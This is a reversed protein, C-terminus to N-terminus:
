LELDFQDEFVVKGDLDILRLMDVEGVRNFKFKFGVIEGLDAAHSEEIRTEGDIFIVCKKDEVILKFDVWNNLDCGLSSLDNKKGSLYRDGLTVNINSVCGPICLPINYRGKTCIISIRSEHCVSGLISNNRIRCEFNFNSADTVGLDKVYYYDVWFNDDQVHDQESLLRSVDIDLHGETNTLLNNIFMPEPFREVIGMWGNSEVFVEHEKIIESNAFLKAHFYGPYYYFSTHTFDLPSIRVRRRRDWSQQIHFSDAIVKSVDYEFVVTNPLGATVIESKFIVDESKYFVQRRDILFYLSSTALLVIFIVIVKRNFIRRLSSSIKYSRAPKEPTSSTNFNIQFDRWHAYGLYQALVNLTSISPKSQYDVKGWVRKLTTISVNAGTKAFIEEVLQEFDHNTWDNAPGWKLSKEIENKCIQIHDKAM